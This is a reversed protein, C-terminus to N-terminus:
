IIHADMGSLTHSFTLPLRLEAECGTVGVRNRLMVTGKHGEAIQRALTLGIGSGGPKTTYFPVFLNGENTLGPGNDRILIRLDAGDTCWAIEVVPVENRQKGSFDPSSAAEAANRVLNILVQEIQDSDVQLTVQPGGKIEVTLRTEMHSVKEILHGIGVERLPPSPLRSLQHYAQLFRNLSEARDEIVSLGREFDKTAGDQVVSTL